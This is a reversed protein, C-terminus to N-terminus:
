TVPDTSVTSPPRESCQGSPHADSWPRAKEFARSVQLLLAEYGPRVIVQLGVPLGDVFGCPVTAAAYGAYNVFFTFAVLPGRDIADSILPATVGVTPTLLVDAGAMLDALYAILHGRQTLARSYESGTITSARQFHSRGYESLLGRRTPDTYIEQGLSAYRDALLMTYFSEMWRESAFGRDSDEVSVGLSAFTETASLATAVVRPDIGDISGCDGVWRMRIDGVPDDLHVLYDPVPDSVCARDRDDAGALAQLLIASDRVDRSIPGANSFMITSSIGGHRPLRGNSPYLGYVGCLASPIRASGGGDSAISLPTMGAAVTAASGGSSGGPTRAEDWPNRCEAVLRNVTRPFLAFEPLNTKGIVVAGAARLREVHVSDETPRFDRYLLSGATTQMDKTWYIDKVSVPVGFLPGLPEGSALARECEVSAARAPEEAVTIFGHLHEDLALIRSLFGDTVAVPSLEGAVMRDRLQWAPEWFM